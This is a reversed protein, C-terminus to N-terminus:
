ALRKQGEQSLTKGVARGAVTPALPVVVRLGPRDAKLRAVAASFPPLMRAVESPRSGPLVLLLPADPEAAIYARLRMPSAASVDRALTSNGVFTTSLGEREFWPADFGHITLLHDVAGALTRARGPRSAWVQPGVYKVLPLSPNLRRLARAVRLTFGWSDIM